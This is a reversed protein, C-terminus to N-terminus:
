IKLYYFTYNIFDKYQIHNKKGKIKNCESHMIRNIKREVEMEKDIIIIKM